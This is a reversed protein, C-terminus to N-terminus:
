DERRFGLRWLLDAAHRGIRDVAEEGLDPCCVHVCEHIAIDLLTKDDMGPDLEIRWQDAFALGWVDPNKKFRYRIRRM